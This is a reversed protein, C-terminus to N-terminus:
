AASRNVIARTRATPTNVPTLNIKSASRDKHFGSGSLSAGPVGEDLPHHLILNDKIGDKGNTGHIHKVMPVTYASNALRVDEIISSSSEGGVGSSGVFFNGAGNVTYLGGVSNTQVGDVIIRNITNAVDQIICVHYRQGLTAVGGTMNGAGGHVFNEGPEFWIGYWAGADRSNTVIGQWAGNSATRTIWAMLTYSDTATFRFSPNSGGQLEETNARIFEVSM